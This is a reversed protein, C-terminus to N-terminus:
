LKELVCGNIGFTFDEKGSIEKCTVRFNYSVNKQPQQIEVPVAVVGPEQAPINFTTEKSTAPDKISLVLDCDQQLLYFTVLVSGKHTAPFRLLVDWGQGNKANHAPKSSTASKPIFKNNGAKFNIPNDSFSFEKFAGSAIVGQFYKSGHMTARKDSIPAGIAIFADLPKVKNLDISVPQGSKAITNIITTKRLKFPSNPPTKKAAPKETSPKKTTKSSATTTKDSKDASPKKNPEATETKDSETAATETEPKKNSALWIGAGVLCLLVACIIWPAKSAGQPIAVTPPTTSTPRQGSAATITPAKAPITAAAPATNSPAPIGALAVAADSASAYRGVPDAQTMYGLWQSFEPQVNKVFESLPPLKGQQYGNKCEEPSQNAFPHGGALATYCIQGLMFLDGQVSADTAGLEPPFFVPEIQYSGKEKTIDVLRALGFDTLISREGGRARPLLTISGTFLAGHTMSQAHITQLAELVDLALQKVDEVSMAGEELRQSLQTGDIYQSVMYPGDENIAAEYLTQINAHQVSGIKGSYAKFEDEWPLGNGAIADFNRFAVQRQLQTDDALYLGGALDKYILRQIDYRDEMPTKCTSYALPTFHAQRTHISQRVLTNDNRSAFPM